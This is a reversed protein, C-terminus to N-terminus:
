QGVLEDLHFNTVLSDATSIGQKQWISNMPHPKRFVTTHQPSQTQSVGALKQQVLTGVSGM